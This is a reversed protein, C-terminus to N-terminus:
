SKYLERLVLKIVKPIANKVEESPEVSFEIKKIEIGFIIVEPFKKGLLIKGLALNQELKLEHLSIINKQLKLDRETLKYITGPKGGGKVSDIIIIKKFNELMPLLDISRIGADILEVEKPLKMKKLENLVHTGIGDDGMAINGCGIVAKM